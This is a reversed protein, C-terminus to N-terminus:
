LLVEETERLPDWDAAQAQQARQRATLIARAEKPVGGFSHVQGPQEPLAFTLALADALDPSRGLREKVMDKDELQFKGKVFTYTPTTLEGILEKLSPALAGVTKVWETMRLWMEARRNAYRPDIAPAHFQVGEIPAGAAHLNDIVGHGWHGTDDIFGLEWGWREQALLVRAAIATTRQHRLQVPIGSWLGQRPYLVTRDDGFRAVDVGLRKQAWEYQEPTPQRAMAAQVEDPGLLSNISSPPFKGFVNVLVWPNEAGYKAIQERAWDISIRQSRRPSDPDGTIEIVHWLHAETTCADYLPGETHTPNGGQVLKAWAGELHANALGAEATAMVARPIGGSEDLVFLMFKSHLGALADSQEQANANKAWTRQSFFWTERHDKAFIRTNTWEFAETFFASRGRWKQLESWLNDRINDKTISVAAGKPHEGLDGYCAMFNWIMWTLVTTKGPGKCAKMAIRFDRRDRTSAFARLAEAQWLDPEAHFEERVMTMPDRRWRAIRAAADALSM